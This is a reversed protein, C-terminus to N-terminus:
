SQTGVFRGVLLYKMATEASTVTVVINRLMCWGLSDHVCRTVFDPDAFTITSMLATCKWHRHRSITHFLALSCHVRIIGRGLFLEKVERHFGETAPRVREGLLVFPFRSKKQGRREKTNFQPRQSVTWGDERGRRRLADGDQEPRDDRMLGKDLWGEGALV